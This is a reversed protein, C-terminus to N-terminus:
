LSLFRNLERKLALIVADIYTCISLARRLGTETPLTMACNGLGFVQYSYRLLTM